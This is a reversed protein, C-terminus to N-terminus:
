SIKLENPLMIYNEESIGQLEEFRDADLPEFYLSCLSYNMKNLFGFIDETKVNFAAKNQPHFELLILPRNKMLTKQAGKLISLEAGECDMKVVTIFPLDEIDDLKEVPVKIINPKIDASVRHTDKLSDASGEEGWNYFDLTGNTDALAIKELRIDSIHNYQISLDLYQGCYPSPEFAIVNLDKFKSKLFFTHLGINAGIDAFVTTNGRLMDLFLLASLAHQVVPEYSNGRGILSNNKNHFIYIGNRKTVDLSASSLFLPYAKQLVGEKEKLWEKEKRKKRRFVKYKIFKSIKKRWILIKNVTIVSFTRENTTESM